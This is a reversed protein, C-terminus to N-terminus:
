SRRDRAACAPCLGRHTVEVATVVYGALADEPITPSRRSRPVDRIAHCRECVLHDHEDGVNPDYRKPGDVVDVELLEGMSVLENLTNYVTARSIEPLRERALDHVEEATLHVHDGVLVEAVVRRQPSLRWNRDRLRTLLDM